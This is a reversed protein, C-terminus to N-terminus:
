ITRLFDLAFSAAGCLRLSYLKKAGKRGLTKANFGAQSQLHGAFANLLQSNPLFAACIKTDPTLSWQRLPLARIFVLFKSRLRRLWFGVRSHM